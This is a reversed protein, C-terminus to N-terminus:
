GRRAVEPIAFFDKRFQISRTTEESAVQVAGDDIFDKILFVILLIFGEEEVLIM